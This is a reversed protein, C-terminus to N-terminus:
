RGPEGRCTNGRVLRRKSSQCVLLDRSSEPLGAVVLQWGGRPAGRDAEHELDGALRREKQQDGRAGDVEGQAVRLFGHRQQDRNEEHDAHGQVLLV